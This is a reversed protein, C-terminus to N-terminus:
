RHRREKGVRREESRIAKDVSHEAAIAALTSDLPSANDRPDLNWAPNVHSPRVRGYHVDDAMRAVADSLLVDLAAESEPTRETSCIPLACTQVGTVLD